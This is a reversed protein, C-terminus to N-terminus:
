RKTPQSRPQVEVPLMVRQGASTWVELSMTGPKTPVYIFDATEGPGMEMTASKAARLAIPLDAGDRLSGQACLRTPVGDWQRGPGRLRLRCPGLPRIRVLELGGLDGHSSRLFQHQRGGRPARHHGSSAREAGASTRLRLRAPFAAHRSCLRPSTDCVFPLPQRHLTFHPRDADPDPCVM